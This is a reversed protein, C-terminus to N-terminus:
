DDYDDDTTQTDQGTYSRMAMLANEYLEASAAQNAIQAAKAQLLEVEHALRQQELQERSSGLKLFHVIEAASATGQELRKRALDVAMAILQNEAGEPTTAPRRRSRPEEPDTKSRGAM